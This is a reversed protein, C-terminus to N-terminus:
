AIHSAVVLDIEFGYNSFLMLDVSFSVRLRVRQNWGEDM